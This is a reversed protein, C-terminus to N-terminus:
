IEEESEEWIMEAATECDDAVCYGDCEAEDYFVTADPWNERIYEAAIKLMEAARLLDEKNIDERATKM